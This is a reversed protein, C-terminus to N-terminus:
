VGRSQADYLPHTALVSSLCWLFFCPVLWLIRAELYSEVSQVHMTKLNQSAPLFIPPDTDRGYLPATCPIGFREAHNKILTVAFKAEAFFSLAYRPKRTKNCHFRPIPGNEALHTLLSRFEKHDLNYIHHFSCVFVPCGRGTSTRFTHGREVEKRQRRRRSRRLAVLRWLELSM